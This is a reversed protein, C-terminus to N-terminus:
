SAKSLMEGGQVWNDSLHNLIVNVHKIVADIELWQMMEDVIEEDIKRGGYGFLERFTYSLRKPM